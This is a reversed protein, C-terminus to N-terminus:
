YDYDYKKANYYEPNGEVPSIPINLGDHDHPSSGLSVPRSPPKSSPRSSPNSTPKSSPRSLTKAPPFFDIKDLDPFFSNRDNFATLQILFGDNPDVQPRRQKVFHVAQRQTMFKKRMLYACMLTSSRSVGYVCHILVGHGHNVSEEIFNIAKDFHAAIEESPIDLVPIKLYILEPDDPFVPNVDYVASIIRTIGRDRLAKRDCASALGGLWINTEDVILNAEWSNHRYVIPYINERAKNITWQFIRSQSIDTLASNIYDM